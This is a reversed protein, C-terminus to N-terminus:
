NSNIGTISITAYCNLAIESVAPDFSSYFKRTVCLINNKYLVSSNYNFNRKEYNEQSLLLLEFMVSNCETKVYMILSSIVFSYIFIVQFYGFLKINAKHSLFHM